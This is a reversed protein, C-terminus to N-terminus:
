LPAAPSLSPNSTGRSCVALAMGVLLGNYGFLGSSIAHADLQLACAALTAGILGVTGHVGVLPSPFYLSTLILIGALPNNIIVVQSSGRLASDIVRLVYHFCGSHTGHILLTAPMTGNILSLWQLCPLKEAILFAVEDFCCRRPRPSDENDNKNWTAYAPVSIRVM